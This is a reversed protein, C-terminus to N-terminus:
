QFGFGAQDLGITQAASGEPAFAKHGWQTPNGHEAMFKRAYVYIEQINDLDKEKALRIM